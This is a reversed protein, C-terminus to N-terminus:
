RKATNVTCVDYRIPMKDDEGGLVAAIKTAFPPCDELCIPIFFSLMLTTDCSVIAVESLLDCGEPNM